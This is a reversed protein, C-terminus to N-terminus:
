RADIADTTRQFVAVIRLQDVAPNVPLGGVDDTRAKGVRM